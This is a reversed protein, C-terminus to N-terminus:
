DTAFEARLQNEAEHWNREDEGSKCGRHQWIIKAREAIQEYTLLKEPKFLNVIPNSATDKHEGVGKIRQVKSRATEIMNLPSDNNSKPSVKNKAM